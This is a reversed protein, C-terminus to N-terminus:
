YYHSPQLQFLGAVLFSSLHNGTGVWVSLSQRMQLSQLQFPLRMRDTRFSYV